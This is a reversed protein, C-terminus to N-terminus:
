SRRCRPNRAGHHLIKKAFAPQVFLCERRAGDERLDGAQLIFHLRRLLKQGGDARIVAQLADALEVRGVLSPQLLGIRDVKVINDQQRDAQQLFILIHAVVILALEAIDEDVLILIRVVQLIQQGRQQGAPM